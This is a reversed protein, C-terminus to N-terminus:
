MPQSLLRVIIQSWKISDFALSRIAPSTGHSDAMHSRLTQMVNAAQNISGKLNGTFREVSPKDWEIETLKESIDEYVGAKKLAKNCREQFSESNNLNVINENNRYIQKVANEVAGCASQIAGSLDGDRFRTAAKILDERASPDLEDLDSLDLIEHPLIKKDIIQWGLQNLDHQLREQLVAYDIGRYPYFRESLIQHMVIGLFRTKTENSYNLFEKEIDSVLTSIDPKFWNYQDLGLDKLITLDFGALKVISKIDDFTFEQLTVAVVAWASNINRNHM